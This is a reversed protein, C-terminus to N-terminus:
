PAARGTEIETDPRSGWESWSGDYVASDYGLCDLALSLICATVGSGCTTIVPRELDIGAQAFLTEDIRLRGESTLLATFPLNRAGPMHGARMGERPEPVRATFRAKGRADLIQTQGTRIAATVTERDAVWAPNLVAQFDGDSWHTAPQDEVRGSAAIWAPLGGDLVAVTHLGMARFMWWVRAASFLGFRDYVILHSDVNIGLERAHRAFEPASPLMHPLANATDKVTDIDFCRAGPIFGEAGGKPGAPFTWSADLFVTGPDSLRSIAVSACILGKSM